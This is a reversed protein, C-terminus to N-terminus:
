FFGLPWYDKVTVQTDYSMYFNNLLGMFANFETENQLIFNHYQLSMGGRISIKQFHGM